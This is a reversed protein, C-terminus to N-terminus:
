KSSSENYFDTEEIIPEESGQPVVLAGNMPMDDDTDCTPYESQTNKNALYEETPVVANVDNCEDSPDEPNDGNCIRHYRDFKALKAPSILDPDVYLSSSRRKVETDLHTYKNLQGQQSDVQKSAQKTTTMLAIDETPCRPLYGHDPTIPHVHGMKDQELNDDQKSINSSDLTIAVSAADHPMSNIFCDYDSTSVNVEHCQDQGQYIDHNHSTKPLIISIHKGNHDQIEDHVPGLLEDQSQLLHLPQYHEIFLSDEEMIVKQELSNEAIPCSPVEQEDDKYCNVQKELMDLMGSLIEVVERRIEDFQHEKEMVGNISKERIITNDNRHMHIHNNVVEHLYVCDRTVVTTQTESIGADVENENGCQIFNDHNCTDIQSDVGEVLVNLHGPRVPYITGCGEKEAICPHGMYESDINNYDQESVYSHTRGIKTETEIGLISNQGDNDTQLKLSQKMGVTETESVPSPSLVEVESVSSQFVLKADAKVVSLAIPKEVLVCFQEIVTDQKILKAESEPSEFLVNTESHSYNDFMSSDERTQGFNNMVAANENMQDILETKTEPQNSQDFAKVEFKTLSTQSSIKVATNSQSFQDIEKGSVEPVCELDMVETEAVNVGIVNELLSQCIVREEVDPVCSQNIKRLEAESPCYKDIEEAGINAPFILDVLKIEQKPSCPKGFLEANAEPLRAHDIMKLDVNLPCTQSILNIEIEASCLQPIILNETLQLDSGDEYEPGPLDSKCRIEQSTVESVCSWDLLEIETEQISSKSIDKNDSAMTMLPDILEDSQCLRIMVNGKAESQCSRESVTAQASQSSDVTVTIETESQSSTAMVKVEAESQDAQDVVIDDIDSQSSENQEKNDAKSHSIKDMMTTGPEFETEQDKTITVENDSQSPQDMVKVDSQSSQNILTVESISQSPQHIVKDELQSFIEKVTNECPMVNDTIEEETEPQRSQTGVESHQHTIKSDGESQSFKDTMLAESNNSQKIVKLEIESLSSTCTVESQSSHFMNDVYDPLYSQDMVVVESDCSQIASISDCELQNSQDMVTAESQCPLNTMTSGSQSYQDKVAGESQSPQDKVKLELYESQKCRDVQRAGGYSQNFLVIDEACTSESVCAQDMLEDSQCLRIMVNDKAESQCSRENVTAPASQSSDVTVTIETESQSSTAMVKAEAESQDTQDVVIDEIDSQSSEDQEKNDANSHSINYDMMTTGPEFVNEQDKTIIVENDSESQSHQDMVKVDSQSSQNMLTVESSSQSSQYIVKDEIQSFTEKVTNECPIVNDTIEEETEPQRSQTGVESPQHTTKSDGESESFKDTM